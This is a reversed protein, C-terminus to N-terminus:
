PIISTKQELGLQMRWHSEVDDLQFTRLDAAIKRAVALEWLNGFSLGIEQAFTAALFAAQLERSM